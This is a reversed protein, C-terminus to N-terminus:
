RGRPTERGAAAGSSWGFTFVALNSVIRTIGADTFAAYFRADSLSGCGPPWSFEPIIEVVTEGPPFTRNYYDFDSFSPAFFYSNSIDLIVFLLYYDVLDQVHNTVTVRCYCTNGPVYHELPMELVVTVDHEPTPTASPDGPQTPTPTV